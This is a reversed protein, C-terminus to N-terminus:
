RNDLINNAAILYWQPSRSRKASATIGEILVEVAIGRAQIIQQRNNLLVTPLALHELDHTMRGIDILWIACVATSSSILWILWVSHM